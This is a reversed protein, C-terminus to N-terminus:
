RKRKPKAPELDVVVDDVREDLLVVKEDHKDSAHTVIDLEQGHM